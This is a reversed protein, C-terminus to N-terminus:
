IYVVSYINIRLIIVYNNIIGGFFNAFSEAQNKSIFYYRKVM